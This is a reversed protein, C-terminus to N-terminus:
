VPVAPPAEPVVPPFTRITEPLELTLSPLATGQKRLVEAAPAFAFTQLIITLKEEFRELNVYHRFRHHFPMQARPQDVDLEWPHFYFMVGRGEADNVRRIGHRTLQVPLLRFYGGGGIPMNMGLLRTTGIPFEILKQGGSQWAVYPFRPADPSGYRDHYIPYCSSDYVFGEEALIPYAWHESAGISYNPARYGIVARGSTQQLLEKARRVDERFESPTMRSVLQHTYSHCAIEHGQDAIRRLLKPHKEAVSGVVFFTARAGYRDLLALVRNTSHEVRSPLTERGRFGYAAEFEMGHYYEELDVTLANLKV